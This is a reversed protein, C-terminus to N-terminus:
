KGQIVTTREWQQDQNVIRGGGWEWVTFEPAGAKEGGVGSVRVALDISPMLGPPAMHPHPESKHRYKSLRSDSWCPSASLPLCDGVNSPLLTGPSTPCNMSFM